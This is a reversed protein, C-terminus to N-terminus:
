GAAIKGAKVLAICGIALAAAAIALVAWAFGGADKAASTLSEAAERAKRGLRTEM